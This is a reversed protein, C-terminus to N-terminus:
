RGVAREWYGFTEAGIISPQDRCLESLVEFIAEAWGGLGVLTLSALIRTIRLYNHNGRTLWHRQRGPRPVVRLRGDADGAARRTSFGYFALMRRLARTMNARIQDSDQFAARDLDTLLPAHRNFQSPQPLPFLWQIYDHTSELQEDDWALIERLTRGRHDTGTGFYFDILKSV